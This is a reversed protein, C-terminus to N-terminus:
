HFQVINIGYENFKTDIPTPLRSSQGLGMGILNLFAGFLAAVGATSYVPNSLFNDM